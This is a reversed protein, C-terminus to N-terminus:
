WNSRLNFANSTKTESINVDLKVNMQILKSSFYKEKSNYDSLYKYIDDDSLSVMDQQYILFDADNLDYQFSGNIGSSIQARISSHSPQYSANKKYVSKIGWAFPMKYLGLKTTCISKM